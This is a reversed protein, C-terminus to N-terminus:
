GSLVLSQDRFRRSHQVLGHSRLHEAVMRFDQPSVLSAKSVLCRRYGSLTSLIELSHLNRRRGRCLCLNDLLFCRTQLCVDVLWYDLEIFSWIFRIFSTNQGTKVFAFLGAPRLALSSSGRCICTTLGLRRPGRPESAELSAPACPARRGSSHM